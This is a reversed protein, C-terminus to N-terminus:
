VFVGRYLYVSRRSVRLKEAVEDVSNGRDLLLRIDDALEAPRNRSIVNPAETAANVDQHVVGGWIRAVTSRHVEYARAVDAARYMGEAAKIEQVAERTLKM